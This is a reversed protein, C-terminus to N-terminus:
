VARTKMSDAVFRFCIMVTRTGRTALVISMRDTGGVSNVSPLSIMVIGTILVMDISM